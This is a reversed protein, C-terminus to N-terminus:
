ADVYVVACQLQRHAPEAACVGQCGWAPSRPGFCGRHGVQDVADEGVLRRVLQTVSIVARGVQFPL